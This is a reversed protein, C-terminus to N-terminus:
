PGNTGWFSMPIVAAPVGRHSRGLQQKGELTATTSYTGTTAVTRRGIALHRQNSGDSVSASVDVNMSTLPPTSAWSVSEILAVAPQTTTIPSSDPTANTATAGINDLRIGPQTDDIRVVILLAPGDFTLHTVTVMDSTTLPTTLIGSWMTSSHTTANRQAEVNYTTGVTDACNVFANNSGWVHGVM